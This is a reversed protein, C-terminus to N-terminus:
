NKSIASVEAQSLMWVRFVAGTYDPIFVVDKPAQITMPMVILNQASRFQVGPALPWSAGNIVVRGDGTPPQMLGLKAEPPLTRNATYQDYQQATVKSGPNQSATELAASVISAILAAPLPM